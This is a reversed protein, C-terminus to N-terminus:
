ILEIGSRPDDYQPSRRLRGTASLAAYTPISRPEAGTVGDDPEADVNKRDRFYYTPYRDEELAAVNYATGAQDVYGFRVDPM